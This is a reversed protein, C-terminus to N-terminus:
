SVALLKTTVFPCHIFCSPTSPSSLLPRVPAPVRLSPASMDVTFFVRRRISEITMMGAAAPLRLVRHMSFMTREAPLGLHEDPLRVFGRHNVAWWHAFATPM